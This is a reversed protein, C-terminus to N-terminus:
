RLDLNAPLRAGPKLNTPFLKEVPARCHRKGLGLRQMFRNAGEHEIFAAANSFDPFPPLEETAAGDFGEQTQELGGGRFEQEMEVLSPLRPRGDAETSAPVPRAGLQFLIAHFDEAVIGQEVLDPPGLVTLARHLGEEPSGGLCLYSMLQRVSIGGEPKPPLEEYAEPLPPVTPLPLGDKQQEETSLEADQGLGVAMGTPGVGGGDMPLPLGDAGVTPMLDEDVVKIDDLLAEQREMEDRQRSHYQYWSMDLDYQELQRLRAPFAQLVARLWKRQAGPRDFLGPQLACDPLSNKWLEAEAGTPDEFLPLTEFEEGTIWFDPYEFGSPVMAEIRQRVDMLAPLSPWGLPSHLLGIHLLFDPCDVYGVKPPLDFLGCLTSLRELDCPRWCEPVLPQDRAGEESSSPNTLKLMVSLLASVPLVCSGTRYASAACVISELLHELQLISWRHPLSCELPLPIIPPDPAKLLVNPHRHLHAGELTLRAIILAEDEIHEKLVDALGVCADLEKQRRLRLWDHLLVSTAASAESMASLRRQAWNKIVELRHSFTLREALLAQQMDVYLPPVPGKPKKDEAEAPAGKAGAKAKAKAKAKPDVAEPEEEVAVSAGYEVTPWIFAQAATMLEALFPFEWYAPAGDEVAEVYKRLRKARAEAPDEQPVEEVEKGKKPPPKKAKPDEPPPEEVKDSLVNLKAPPPKPPPLGSGLASWYFDSILQCACHYRQAELQVAHQVQAALIEAQSEVWKSQEIEQLRAACEESRTNVKERLKTHLDDVQQHLEDKTRDQKRMEPYEESFSNFRLVFDDVLVQKDDQRQLLMLFRQQIGFLGNRFDELFGRHWLFLQRADGTFREHLENWEQVLLTFVTEELKEVYKPLETMQVPELPLPEEAPADEPTTAPAAEAAKKPEAKAKAKAKPDMAALEAALREAEEAAAKISAEEAAREAEAAEAEAALRAKEAEAAEEAEAIEKSRQVRKRELLMAVQEELTDYVTEVPHTADISLLRDLDAFPGFYALLRELDPQATDFSHIRNTLTGLSNTLDDIPLLREYIIQLPVERQEATEQSLAGVDAGTAVPPLLKMAPPSDELHYTLNTAPDVRRGVAHRVANDGPLELRIHLDYGGSVLQFPPAEQPPSPAVLAAEAKKLEAQPLPASEHLVWGSLFRELLEFQARDEPFGVLIWGSPEDLPEPATAAAPAMTVDAGPASTAADAEPAAPAAADGDQEEAAAAVAAGANGDEIAAPASAAEPKPMRDPFLSRIKTVILHVYTEDDVAEGRDLKQQLEYGIEQLERYYPNGSEALKACEEDACEATFSLVDIPGTTPMDPRQSLLLCEKVVDDVDVVHLNYTEAIRRALTKKGSFPKGSLVLRLPVEPMPPPEPKPPTAYSRDLLAAVVTGLRYNVPRGNVIDVQDALRDAYSVSACEKELLQKMEQAPDYVALTTSPEAAADAAAEAPAADQDASPQPQRIEWQGRSDLYERLAAEDLITAATAANDEEAPSPLATIPYMTTLTQNLPPATDVAKNDVFLAMWEGWLTEDVDENDTLQEQRLAEFALQEVLQLLGESEEALKALHEARRSREIAMYRSREREEQLRMQELQEERLNQDRRLSEQLDQKRRQACEKTRLQRNQVIVDEYKRTRWQCYSIRKEEVAERSLTELLVEELKSEELLDQERQQEVLVRRRRREREKRAISGANKSEKIKRLFLGAEQELESSSPLRAQLSEVLERANGVNTTTAMLREARNESRDSDSSDDEGTRLQTAPDNAQTIGLNQLGTEFVDIGNRVESNHHKLEKQRKDQFTSYQRREFDVAAQERDLRVRMNQQWLSHSYGDWDDKAARNQRMRERLSFRHIERQEAIQAQSINDLEMSVLEQKMKEDVFKQTVKDSREQRANPCTARLRHEFFNREHADFTERPIRIGKTVGSGATSQANVSPGADCSLLLRETAMKMQYLLRLSAGREGSMMANSQTANFKIGLAKLTPELRKFNALKSEYTNRNSFNDFDDQQRFKHLIEGFLFGNAFDKEFNAVNTSLGVENNLWNQLLESM